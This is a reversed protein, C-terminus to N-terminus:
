EMYTHAKDIYTQLCEMVVPHCNTVSLFHFARKKPVAEVTQRPLYNHYLDLALTKICTAKFYFTAM